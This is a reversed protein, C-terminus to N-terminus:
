RRAPKGELKFLKNAFFYSFSLFPFYLLFIHPAYRWIKPGIHYEWFGLMLPIIEVFFILVFATFGLGIHTRINKRDAYYVIALITFNILLFFWSNM